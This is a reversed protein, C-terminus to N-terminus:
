EAGCYLMETGEDMFDPGTLTWEMTSTGDYLADLRYAGITVAATGAPCGGFPMALNMGWTMSLDMSETRSGDSFTADIHSSGTGAVTYGNDVYTVTMATALDYAMDVTGNEQESHLTMGDSVRYEMVTAGLASPLPGEANRFQIWVSIRIQGSDTPPDGESFDGVYEYVWAMQEADWEPEGYNKRAKLTTFGGSALDPVDLAMANIMELAAGAYELAEAPEISTGGTPSAPDDGSCGVLLGICALIAMLATIKAYHM